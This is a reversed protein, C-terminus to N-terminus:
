EIEMKLRFRGFVPLHDSIQGADAVVFADVCEVFNSNYFIYDIMQYPNESNFTYNSAPNSQYVDKTIASRIHTAKMLEILALNNEAEYEPRSNFDGAMLVPGSTSYGNFIERVIQAQRVRAVEDFAELHANMVTWTTGNIVVKSIQLLRDIYFMRYYFPADAPPPLLVTSDPTLEFSSVIAQGSLIRGFHDAPPWYPFPVYKKDWNVSQYYVPYKLWRALSDLQNLNFSRGSEFDIEQFCLIDPHYQFLLDKSKKLNSVILDRPRPVALNNTMGSLYGINYTMLSVTDSTGSKVTGYQKFVVHESQDYNASQAYFILLFLGSLVVIILLLGKKM